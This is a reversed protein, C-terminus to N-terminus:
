PASSAFFPNLIEIKATTRLRELDVQGLVQRLQQLMRARIEEKQRPFNAGEQLEKSKLEFLYARGQHQSLGTKQAENLMLVQKKFEPDAGIGEMSPSVATLSTEAVPLNYRQAIAALSAGENLSQAENQAVEFAVTKAKEQQVLAIIEDKVAEFPQLTPEQTELLRYFVHGQLPNRQWRGFDGTQLLNMQNVLPRVSGLGALASEEDFFDTQVLSTDFSKALAALDNEEPMRQELRSFELNLKKEARTEQLIDEIEPRAEALTQVVEPKKEDVQIIHFGFPSEVVASVEGPELGFAAQEFEAVMEGPKFWGLDGGREKSFDESHAKALVEFAEGAQLQKLLNEAQTRKEARQEESMEPTTKTLIHRARVEVPTTFDDQNREYYRVVEREKVTATPKFDDLALTFYEIKFQKPKEFDKPHDQYYKQLAEETITVEDAFATPDFYVYDVTFTENELLFRQEVERDSVVLGALLLNRYKEALLDVRLEKEYDEVLMRNQALIQRYTGEDFYGNVQFYPLSQIHAALELDTVQVGRKKAEDVLLYRNILQQFVQQRLNLQEALQDANPGFRSRLSELQQSYLRQYEPALLEESNVLAIVEKQNGFFSGIGFSIVFTIAIFGLLIKFFISQSQERLQQIM